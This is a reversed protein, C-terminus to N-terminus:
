RVALHVMISYGLRAVSAGLFCGGLCGQRVIVSGAVKARTVLACLSVVVGFVFLSKDEDIVVARDLLFL